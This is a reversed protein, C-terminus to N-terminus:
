AEAQTSVDFWPTPPISNEVVDRFDLSLINPQRYTCPPSHLVSTRSPENAVGSDIAANDGYITITAVPAIRAAGDIGPASRSVNNEPSSRRRSMSPSSESARQDSSCVDSRWDSIRMEYVTKQKSFFPLICM